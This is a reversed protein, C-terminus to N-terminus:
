TGAGEQEHEQEQEGARARSEQEQERRSARAHGHGARCPEPLPVSGPRTRDQDQRGTRARNFYHQNTRTTGGLQSTSQDEQSPEISTRTRVTYYEQNRTGTQDLEATRQDQNAQTKSTQRTKVKTVTITRVQDLTQWISGSQGTQDQPGPEATPGLHNQDPVSQQEPRGHSSTSRGPEAVALGTRPRATQHDAM